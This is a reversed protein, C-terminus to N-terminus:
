YAASPMFYIFHFCDRPTVLDNAHRSSADPVVVIRHAKSSTITLAKLHAKQPLSDINETTKDVKSRHSYCLLLKLDHDSKVNVM